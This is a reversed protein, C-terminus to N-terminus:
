SGMPSVVQPKRNENDPEESNSLSTRLRLTFGTPGGAAEMRCPAQHQWATHHARGFPKTDWQSTLLEAHSFFPHLYSSKPKQQWLTLCFKATRATENNIGWAGYSSVMASKHHRMFGCTGFCVFCSAFLKVFLVLMLFNSCATLGYLVVASGWFQPPFLFSFNGM